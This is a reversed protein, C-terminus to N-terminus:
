QSIAPCDGADAVFHSRATDDLTAPAGSVRRGPPVDRIVVAGAGVHSGAGIVRGPIVSSGIALTANRGVRVAGALRVAPHLFAGEDLMCDHDVICGASIIAHAGVQANVCISARPGVIVHEGIRASLAISCLPHVASILAIGRRTLEEAYAARLRGDGIAVIAATVGRIIFSEVATLDGAVPLGGIITGQKSVDSDLYAIPDYEEGQLLIDHVLSGLGAAGYILVPQKM